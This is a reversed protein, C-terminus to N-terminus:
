VKVAGRRASAISEAFTLVRRAQSDWSKERVMYDRARAALERRVHEPTGAIDEIATALGAPSEDELLFALEGYEEAVHGTKTTLVPVGTTLCELLKSPFFYRTNLKKTVRVNLLLDADRYLALVDEFALLGRFEIRCDSQQAKRVVGELPGSGAIVLRFPGSLRSFAELIVEVGNAIDLGGASVITFPGTRTTTPTGGTGDIVERGVGGDIRISPVAAALDQAISDAVVLLGDCRRLLAKQLVLDIRFRLSDPVTHGPIHVDNVFVVLRSRTLRAAALTFTGPPMTLNYAIVVRRKAHRMKWGWVLLRLFVGVGVWVQKMPIVNLYGVLVACIGPVVEERAGGVWLRRGRPFSPELHFTYVAAHVGANRLGTLLGAQSLNGARSFAATRHAPTDAVVSGIFAVATSPRPNHGTRGTPNGVAGTVTEDKM